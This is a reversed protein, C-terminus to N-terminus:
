FAINTKILKIAIALLIIGFVKRLVTTGNMGITRQIWGSSRITIFIIIGNILIGPIISSLQYEAKLSLITTLTGAGAILPFAIPFVSATSMSHDHKFFEIGLIMELGIIFIVVGGAVAFSSLDVGFLSLLLEGMFLFVIMIVSAVLTTKLAEIKVGKEKLDLIIPINGLIDIISFLILTVSLIEKWIMLYPYLFVGVSRTLAIM